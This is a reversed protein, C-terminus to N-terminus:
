LRFRITVMVEGPVPQGDLKSPQYKWQRLANLAAQQLLTPGSVVTMGAVKGKADIQARIVVDGQTHMQAAVAPYAPQVSSILRPQSVQATGAALSHQSNVASSPLVSAPSTSGGLAGGDSAPPTPMAVSPAAAVQSPASQSPVPHANLTGFLNPTVSPAAHKAPTSPQSPAVATSLVASSGSNASPSNVHAAPPATKGQAGPKPVVTNAAVPAVSAQPAPQVVLPTNAGAAGSAAHRHHLYLYGAATGALLLAACAAILIPNQRPGREQAERVRAGSEVRAGFSEGETSLESDLAPNPAHRGSKARSHSVPLEVIADPVEAPESSESPPPIIGPQVDALLEEMSLPRPPATPRAVSAEPPFTTAAVKSPPPVAKARPVETAAPQVNEQSGISIFPSEPKVMPIVRAPAASPPKVEASPAPASPAEPVANEFAPAQPAAPTANKKAPEPGDAPFYVGWYGLQRQTFEIEVYGGSGSPQKRVKVVRCIADQRSKLNTLILMQGVSVAMSVRLVGGQPFVIMTSTQEEFPETRPTVGRAVEVVRSGHIKVPIELSVADSRLHGAPKGAQAEPQSVAPEAAPHVAEITEKLPTMTTKPAAGIGGLM